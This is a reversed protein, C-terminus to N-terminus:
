IANYLQTWTLTAVSVGTGAVANYSIENAGIRLSFFESPATIFPMANITTGDDNIIRAYKKGIETSIVLRENVNLSRNFEMYQGTTLNTIRPSTNPGRVEIIFPAPEHGNNHITQSTGQQGFELPFSFPLSFGETFAYLSVTRQVEDRWYPNPALMTVDARQFTPARQGKGSPYQPVARPVCEISYITSDDIEYVLTGLGLNPNMVRGVYSRKVSLDSTNDGFCTFGLTIERMGMRIGTIKEGDVNPSAQTQIDAEIDGIGEILNLVYDGARNLLEISDGLSNTFIVKGM